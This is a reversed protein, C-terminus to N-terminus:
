TWSIHLKCLRCPMPHHYVTVLRYCDLRGLHGLFSADPHCLPQGEAWGSGQIPRDCHGCIRSDAVQMNVM